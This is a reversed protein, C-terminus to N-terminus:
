DNKLANESTLWQRLETKLIKGYNNKPLEEVFIYKKPRKFRAIHEICLTDLEGISTQSKAVVFAVVVEGWESDAQGIVAVEKVEPHMLLIEEVERPYINSGGSIIVDKSRDKLSLFGDSDLIGIDGTLLWGNKLSKGTAVENQWYGKMVVDGRVMVEGLEGAPLAQGVEDVVAIEVLSHAVGVSAIRHAWQPHNRKSLQDRSLVTITMPCEGQGYIQVFCNGMTDLARRIDEIYMPGGGYVITKFGRSDVQHTQVYDVLRKVMTPAAFTSLNGVSHSLACLEEPDFGGSEPIVHRAGKLIHPFNYLGAGHSMPAAYIIADQSSVEDVDMLYSATMLQLNRHTQMVGKPRGTTGSTYFLWAVDDPECPIMELPSSDILSQYQIDSTLVIKKLSGVSAVLEYEAVQLKENLFLCGAKSDELVYILERPNLKANVPVVILGAWWAAYLVELYEPSNKMFLAVRDGPYLGLEANMAGALRSVRQAFTRYNFLVKDGLLIAENEPYISAARKLLQAINM